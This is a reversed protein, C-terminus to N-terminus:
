NAIESIFKIHILKIEEESYDEGLEDFAEQMNDTEVDMFYNYIEEEVDPDVEQEVEYNIDLRTGSHCIHEMETLLKSYSIGLSDAIEHFPIQKDVQNIILVKNKSKNVATKVFTEHITQLNNKQAYESIAKLFPEGFKKAKGMGVGQIHTLDELSTPYTKAMEELSEEQFVVYPPLEKNEAIKKRIKLLIDLLKGDAQDEQHHDFTEVTGEIINPYENDKLFKIDFPEALYSKGTESITIVGYHEIDKELFENILAQRFISTWFQQGQAKGAGFVELKHHKYSKNSQTKVGAAIDVMYKLTFKQNIDVCIQLAIKLYEKAEFSEKPTKCNDCFGCDDDLHEGFYHLLQRTRCLATESYSIVEDLLLRNNDRESVTKDKNFKELKLIDNYNYFMVCHSPKGDRGGRGTEQYYGELSKPADFHVVYRVDPKDIGMGFAITAVIIHADENLFADQNAVRRANEMGAHYPLAPIGNVNLFDAIEEVKKRSLCYIIGCEGKRQTIFEVLKKKPTVKPIVEYFLNERRFSSKYIVADEMHLNRQIDQQVKPTATATLAIIPVKGLETIISKIRRYEPRFDHGWESICHVEDIAVFSLNLQKFFAINEEKTLSEPAVYLLKTQGALTDKKIKTIATKTLSSNLYSACIGHARLQDVQNKMLAILPSIVIATGELMIAPLQYCLSKGAGTPMIVFADHGALLNEIIIKQNGRFTDYGFYTKLQTELETSQILKKM